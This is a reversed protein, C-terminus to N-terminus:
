LADPGQVAAPVRPTPRRGALGRLARCCTWRPAWGLGRQNCGLLRGLLTCHLAGPFGDKMLLSALLCLALMSRAALRWGMADAEISRQNDALRFPDDRWQQWRARLMGAPGAAPGAAPPACAPPQAPKFHHLLQTRRLAAIGRVISAALLRLQRWARQDWTGSVPPSLPPPWFRLRRGARRPTSTQAAPVSWQPSLECRSPALESM